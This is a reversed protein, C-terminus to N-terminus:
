FKILLEKTIIYIGIILVFWGFIPKLKKGDIYKSIYAGIFIGITSLLSFYTILMWNIKIATTLDGLFGIISNAAIILLSTGVAKKMDLKAFFILSPIILFGGGAGVLGLFVGVLFFKLILFIKGQEKEELDVDTKKIMSYSALIMLVSFLVMIMMNKTVVFSGVTLLVDPLIPLVLKRTLLIGIFSPISFMIAIRFDVLKQKMYSVSGILSTLGVIFLSYGTSEYAPIQMLYVLIPVTLISGGGGLLGLVLGIFIASFYGLIEM